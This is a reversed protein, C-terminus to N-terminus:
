YTGYPSYGLQQCVVSAAKHQNRWLDDCVAGWIGGSCVEVRGRILEDGDKTYHFELIDAAETYYDYVDGIM